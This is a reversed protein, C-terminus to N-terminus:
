IEKKLLMSEPKLGLKDYLSRAAMNKYDVGLRIQKAGAAKARNIVSQLLSHGIGSNRHNPDVYLNDIYVSKADKEPRSTVMGVPKGNKFAMHTRLAKYWPKSELGRQLKAVMAKKDPSVKLQQLVEADGLYERLRLMKEALAQQMEPTLESWPADAIKVTTKPQPKAATTPQTTKM